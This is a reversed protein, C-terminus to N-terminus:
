RKISKSTVWGRPAGIVGFVFGILALVAISGFVTMVPVPNDTSLGFNRRALTGAWADPAFPGNAISLWVVALTGGLLLGSLAGVIAMFRGTQLAYRLSRDPPSPAPEPPQEKVKRTTGISFSVLGLPQGIAVFLAGAIWAVHAVRKATWGQPLPLWAAATGIILAAVLAGIFITVVYWYGKIVRVIAHGVQQQNM